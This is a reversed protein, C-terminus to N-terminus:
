RQWRGYITGQVELIAGTTLVAGSHNRAWVVLDKDNGISFKLRIRQIRGDALTQAAIDPRGFVGIRRIPRRSREREVILDPSTVSADLGEQIESTTLDGHAFGVVIPVEGLTHNRLTTLVDVSIIYIDEGFSTALVAIKALISEALALLPLEITFPIAIFNKRNVGTRKRKKTM